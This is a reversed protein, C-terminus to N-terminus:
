VSLDAEVEERRRLTHRANFRVERSGPFEELEHLIEDPTADDRAIDALFVSGYLGYLARLREPQSLRSLDFPSFDSQNTDIVPNTALLIDRKPHSEISEEFARRKELSSASCHSLSDLMWEHTPFQTLITEFEELSRNPDYYARKAITLLAEDVLPALKWMVEDGQKSHGLMSIAISRQILDLAIEDPLAHDLSRLLGMWIWQECKQGRLKQHLELLTPASIQRFIARYPTFFPLEEISKRLEKEGEWDKFRRNLMSISTALIGRAWDELGKLEVM